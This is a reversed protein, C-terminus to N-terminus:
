FVDHDDDQNIMVTKSKALKSYLEPITREVSASFMVDYEAKRALWTAGAFDNANATHDWHYHSLALYTIDSPKYGVEALQSKLTKTVTVDRETRDPLAFHLRVPAGTPKWSDDRIAGVDWMLTGKPHAILFCGFSMDTNGVESKKLLYADASTYNLIQRKYVDESGVLSRLM